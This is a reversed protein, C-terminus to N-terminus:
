IEEQSADNMGASRGTAQMLSGHGTAFIFEWQLFYIPWLYILGVWQCIKWFVQHQTLSRKNTVEVQVCVCDEWSYHLFIHSSLIRKGLTNLHFAFQGDVLKHLQGTMVNSAMLMQSFTKLLWCQQAPHLMQNKPSKFTLLSSPWFQFRKAFDPVCQPPWTKPM